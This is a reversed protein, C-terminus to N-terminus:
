GTHMTHVHLTIDDAPVARIIDEVAVGHMDRTSCVQVVRSQAYRVIHLLLYCPTASTPDAISYGVTSGMDQQRGDYLYASWPVALGLWMMGCTIHLVLMTGHNGTYDQHVVVPGSRTIGSPM